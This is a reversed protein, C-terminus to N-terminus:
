RKELEHGRGKPFEKSHAKWWAEIDFAESPRFSLGVLRANEVNGMREAFVESNLDRAILYWNERQAVLGLPVVVEEKAHANDDGAARQRVIMLAESGLIARRVESWVRDDGEFYLKGARLLNAWDANKTWTPPEGSSATTDDSFRLVYAKFSSEDEFIAGPVATGPILRYGGDPGPVGEIPLGTQLLEEIDRYVTRVNVECREALERASVLAESRLLGLLKFQRQTRRDIM